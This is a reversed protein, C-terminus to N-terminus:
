DPRSLRLLGQVIQQLTQQQRADKLAGSDDFAEHAKSVAMQQPLVLMQFNTGLFQRMLTLARLGGLAGPSTSLLALPKGATTATGAPRDAAAPVRSLWDWANLTLPTPFANYEPTVFIVGDSRALAECFQLAGPPVGERAELDGDYLPLDLARLDLTEAQAGAAQVAHAAADRLRLSLAGQRSSGALLLIRPTSM